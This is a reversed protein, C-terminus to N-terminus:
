SHERGTDGYFITELRRRIEYLQDLEEIGKRITKDMEDPDSSPRERENAVIRRTDAIRVTLLHLMAEDDSMGRCEHNSM